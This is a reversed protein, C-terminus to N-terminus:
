RKKKVVKKAKKVPKKSPKKETEEEETEEELEAEPEVEPEEPIEEVLTLAEPSLKFVGKGEVKVRAKNEEALIEIVEGELKKGKASFSVRSGESLEVDETEKELEEKKFSTASEEVDTSIGEDELDSPELTRVIGVNQYEGKTRLSIQVFTEGKNLEEIIEEIEEFSEPIEYGLAAIKRGFWMLNDETELGPYESKVKGKYQGDLILYRIAVQLRGSSKSQGIEASKIRTYYRGDDIDDQFGGEKAREKATEWAKRALGLAKGFSQDAM